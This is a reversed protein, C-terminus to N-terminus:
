EDSSKKKAKTHTRVDPWTRDDQNKQHVSSSKLYQSPLYLAKRGIMHDGQWRPAKIPLHYVSCHYTKRRHDLFYITVYGMDLWDSLRDLAQKPITHFGM